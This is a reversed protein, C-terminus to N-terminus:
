SVRQKRQSKIDRSQNFLTYDKKENLFTWNIRQKLQSNSFNSEIFDHDNEERIIKNNTGGESQNIQNMNSAM